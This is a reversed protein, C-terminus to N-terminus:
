GNLCHVCRFDTLIKHHWELLKGQDVALVTGSRGPNVHGRQQMYWDFLGGSIFQFIGWLTYFFLTYNPPHNINKKIKDDTNNTSKEKQSTTPLHETNVCSFEDNLRKPAVIFKTSFVETPKKNIFPIHATSIM